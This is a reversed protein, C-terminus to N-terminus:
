EMLGPHGSGADSDRNLEVDENDVCVSHIIIQHELLIAEQGLDQWM